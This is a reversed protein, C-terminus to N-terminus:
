VEDVIMYKGMAKTKRRIENMYWSSVNIDGGEALIPEIIVAAVEIGKEEEYRKITEEMSKLSKLDQQHNYDANEELPYKYLPADMKPWDFAPVDM